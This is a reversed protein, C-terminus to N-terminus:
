RVEAVVPPNLAVEVAPHARRIRALASVCAQWEGKGVSHVFDEFIPASLRAFTVDQLAFDRVVEILRLKAVSAPLPRAAFPADADAKPRRGPPLGFMVTRLFQQLAETSEFRESNTPAPRDPVYPVPRHEQWLLRVAFTRVDREPSEMLWALRQPGGIAGYHTALLRMAIDRTSRQPSETLAFVRVPDLWSSPPILAADAETAGGSKIAGFVAAAFNRPERHRSAALEFLLNQDGWRVLEYRAIAVALARVDPREDDFLPRIRDQGYDSATLRSQIGFATADQTKPGLQPHHAKLYAAAFRRVADPEKADTALTWLRDVGDLGEPSVNELLYRHAFHHVTEDRHRVMALLWPVGLQEPAVMQVNGLVSLATSRLSSRLVLGKLWEVDLAKSSLKGATLWTAAQRRLAPELLARKFWAMGIEDGSRKNLEAVAKRRANRDADAHELLALLYAAPVPTRESDYWDQVFSRQPPRGTALRVYQPLALASSRYGRRIKSAAMTEAEGVGSLTILGNLGIDAPTRDALRQVVFKRVDSAGDRALEVLEAVELESAHAEAYRIAYSRAKGSTSRLLDLLV